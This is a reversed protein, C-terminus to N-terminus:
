PVGGSPPPLRNVQRADITWTAGSTQPLPSGAAVEVFRATRLADLSQPAVDVVALGTMGRCTWPHSSSVYGFEDYVFRRAIPRSSDPMLFVIQEPKKDRGAERLVEARVIAWEIQSPVLFGHTVHYRAAILAVCAVAALAVQQVVRRRSEERFLYRIGGAAALLLVFLVAPAIAARTRYPFFDAAVVLHPLYALPILALLGATRLLRNPVSGELRAFTGLPVLIGLCVFALAIRSANHWHNTFGFPQCSQALPQAVFRAAKLFPDSTVNGRRALDIGEAEGASSKFIVIAACMAAILVAAHIGVRLTAAWSWAAMGTSALALLCPVIYFMGAPQYICLAITEAVIGGLMLAPIMWAPRQKWRMDVIAFAALAALCGYVHGSCTAWAAYVAFTPLLATLGAMALSFSWSYDMRRMTAYIGIALLDIGVVAALRPRWLDGITNADGWLLPFLTATVFRGASNWVDLVRAPEERWQWLLWYDDAYGVMGTVCSGYGIGVVATLLVAALAHATFGRGTTTALCSTRDAPKAADATM